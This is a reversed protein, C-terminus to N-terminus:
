FPMLQSYMVHFMVNFVHLKLLQPYTKIFIFILCHEHDLLEKVSWSVNGSWYVLMSSAENLDKQPRKVAQTLPAFTREWIKLSPWYSLM